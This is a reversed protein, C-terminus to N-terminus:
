QTVQRTAERATPVYRPASGHATLAGPAQSALLHPQYHRIGWGQGQAAAPGLAPGKRHQSWAPQPWGLSWAAETSWLPCTLTGLAPCGM